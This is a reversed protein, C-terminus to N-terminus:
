MHHVIATHDAEIQPLVEFLELRSRVDGSILVVVM